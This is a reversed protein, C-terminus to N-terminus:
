PWWTRIEAAAAMTNRVAGEGGADFVVNMTRGMELLLGPRSM